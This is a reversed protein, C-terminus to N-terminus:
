ASLVWAPFQSEGEKVFSGMGSFLFILLCLGGTLSAAIVLKKRAQNTIEGSLFKELGIMGLLPMAFLIIVLAFNVSRFKNYGPLYDFMFYNFSSFSDGWSLMLSLIALLVLWWVYKKEAFLIGVVFLFIIISGAYYAGATGSQPGWYTSTYNVLQNALQNDSSNVLAKYSESKQDNVFADGSTGGYFNPILLTSPEWIGYNYQFAYSITLGEM